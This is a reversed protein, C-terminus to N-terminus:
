HNYIWEGEPMALALHELIKDLGDGTKGSTMFINRFDRVENFMGALELLKPKHILDIKNLILSVKKADDIKKLLAMSNRFSKKTVDVLFLVEEAERFAEWITRELNEVKRNRLFGPTDILIIQSEGHIAIGLIRSQTTQAKRSVAAVKQGVLQNILTSKGANTEGLVAAFGCRKM